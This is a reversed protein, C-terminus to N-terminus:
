WSGAVRGPSESSGGPATMLLVKGTLHSFFRAFPIPGRRIELRPIADSPTPGPGKSITPALDCKDSGTWRRWHASRSPLKPPQIAPHSGARRTEPGM